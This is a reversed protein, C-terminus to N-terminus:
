RSFHIYQGEDREVIDLLQHFRAGNPFNPADIAKRWTALDIPRFYTEDYLAVAHQPLAAALAAFERDGDQRVSDWDPNQREGEFTFMRQEEEKMSELVADLGALRHVEELSFVCINIGM